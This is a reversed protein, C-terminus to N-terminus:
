CISNEWTEATSSQNTANTIAEMQALLTKSNALSAVGEFPPEAAGTLHM